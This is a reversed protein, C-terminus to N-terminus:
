AARRRHATRGGRAIPTNPGPGPNAADASLGGTVVEGVFSSPGVTATAPSDGRVWRVLPYSLVAAALPLLAALALDASSLEAFPTSFAYSFVSGLGLFLLGISAIILANSTFGSRIWSAPPTRRAGGLMVAFLIIAVAIMGAGYVSSM